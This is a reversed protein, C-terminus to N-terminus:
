DPAFVRTGQQAVVQWRDERKAYVKMWRFQGAINRNKYQGRRTARCTVVATDAFVHVKIDDLDLSDTRWDGSRLDKLSDVKAYPIGQFDWGVFDDALIQTVAAGDRDVIARAWEREMRILEQEVEHLAQRQGQTRQVRIQEGIEIAMLDEAVELPGAYATRTRAVLGEVSNYHSYVALRPKVRDFVRGVEEATALLQRASRVRESDREAEPVVIASHILVDTGRAFRVVNESARTDGSLVVSYGMAEIKYGFSPKVPGHDVTFAEVKVAGDDYVIGEAINKATLTVGSSPLDEPASSRVRIDFQYAKQLHSVMEQTGTPGWVRFPAKRGQFWGTLWLDPIGVVHDSHLHTLFLANSDRLQGLQFLRQATGRGCDFLFARGGAQVLTSPGFREVRPLPGGTGLLTVKLAPARPPQHAEQSWCISSLAAFGCLWITKM